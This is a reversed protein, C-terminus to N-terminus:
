EGMIEISVSKPLALGAAVEVAKIIGVPVPCAAHMRCRAAVALVPGDKAPGFVVALPDVQKLEAALKRVSACGSEIKLVVTEGDGAVAEITTSFGCIGSDVHARAMEGRRGCWARGIAMSWWM